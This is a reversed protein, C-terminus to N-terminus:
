GVTIIKKAKEGLERAVETFASGPDARSDLISDLADAETL